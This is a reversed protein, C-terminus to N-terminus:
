AGGRREMEGLDIVTHGSGRGEARGKTAARGAVVPLSAFFVVAGLAFIVMAASGGGGASLVSIAVIVACVLIALAAYRVGWRLAWRESHCGHGRGPLM